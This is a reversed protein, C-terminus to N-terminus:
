AQCYCTNNKKVMLELWESKCIFILSWVSQYIFQDLTFQILSLSWCNILCEELPKYSNINILEDDDHVNDSKWYWACSVLTLLPKKWEIKHNKVVNKRGWVVFALYATRKNTQLKGDRELNKKWEYPSTVM